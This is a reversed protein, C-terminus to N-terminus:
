TAEADYPAKEGALFATAPSKGSVNTEDPDDRILDSLLHEQSTMSSAPPSRRPRRSLTRVALLLRRAQPKLPPNTKM